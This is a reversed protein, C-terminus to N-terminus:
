VDPSKVLHVTTFAAFPAFGARSWARQVRINSAQTSIVVRPIDREQALLGVGHLLTAYRGGGQEASVLGALEIEVFTDDVGQLCTALGIARGSRVLTVVDQPRDDLTRRAWELYGKLVLDPSFAPNASYHSPYDQFSDALVADLDAVALGVCTEVDDGPSTRRLLDAASVDWYMLTDAAIVQRGLGAVLGALRTMRAPWRAVMVDSRSQRVAAAVEREVEPGSRAHDGITLRAVRIGFRRTDFESDDCRVNGHGLADWSM